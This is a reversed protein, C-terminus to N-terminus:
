WFDRVYSYIQKFCQLVKEARQEEEQADKATGIRDHLQKRKM